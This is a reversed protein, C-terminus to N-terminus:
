SCNPRFCPVRPDVRYGAKKAGKLWLYVTSVLVPEQSCSTSTYLFARSRSREIVILGAVVVTVDCNLRYNIAHLGPRKKSTDLIASTAATPRKHDDIDAM